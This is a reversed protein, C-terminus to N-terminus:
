SNSKQEEEVLHNQYKERGEDTFIGIFLTSVITDFVQEATLPLESLVEPVLINHIASIYILM